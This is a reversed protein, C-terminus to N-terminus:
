IKENQGGEILEELRDAQRGYLMWATFASQELEELCEFANMLNRGAVVAGHNKLLVGRAGQATQEMNRFLEESGPPAYPVIPIRGLKMELYPTYVPMVNEPDHHSLCSWLVAYPGHTHIVARMEPNLHYLIQHLRLEKSPRKESFEGTGELPALVLDEAKLTGFCSGSASIYVNGEHLFSINASTGSTKGRNFLSHAIWVADKKKETLEDM